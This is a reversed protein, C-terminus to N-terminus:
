VLLPRLLTSSFSLAPTVEKVYQQQIPASEHLHIDRVLSKQGPKLCKVEIVTRWVSLYSSLSTKKPERRRRGRM